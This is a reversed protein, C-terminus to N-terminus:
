SLGLEIAIEKLTAFQGKFIIENQNHGECDWCLKTTISGKKRM